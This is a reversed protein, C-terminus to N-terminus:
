KDSRDNTMLMLLTKKFLHSADRMQDPPVQTKPFPLLNYYHTLDM